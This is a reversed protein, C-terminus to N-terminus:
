RLRIYALTTDNNAGTKFAVFTSSAVVDSAQLFAPSASADPVLRLTQGDHVNLREARGISDQGAMFVLKGDPTVAASSAFGQLGNNKTAGDVPKDAAFVNPEGGVKGVVARAETSNSDRADRAAFYCFTGGRLAMGFQGRTMKKAAGTRVNLLVASAYSQNDHYLLWEGDFRMQSMGIGGHEAIEIVKPEGNGSKFDYVAVHNDTAAVLRGSAASVAVQKLYNNNFRPFGKVKPEAGSLDVVAFASKDGSNQDTLVAVFDGDAVPGGANYMSGGLSRLRLTSEPINVSKGSAADFVTLTFDQPNALVIKEGCVAFFGSSFEEGGSIGRGAKDGPRIYDVGKVPGTGYAILQDSAAIRAKYQVKIGTKVVTERAARQAQAAFAALLLCTLLACFAKFRIM